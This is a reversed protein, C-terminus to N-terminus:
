EHTAVLGIIKTLKRITTVKLVSTGIRYNAPMQVAAPVILTYNSESPTLKFNISNVYIYENYPYTLTGLIVGTGDGGWSLNCIGFSGDSLHVEVQSYNAIKGDVTTGTSTSPTWGSANDYVTERKGSVYGAATMNGGSDVSWLLVNSDISPYLYITTTGDTVQIWVDYADDEALTVTITGEGSGTLSVTTEATSPFSSDSSKKLYVSVTASSCAYSYAIQATNGDRSTSKVRFILDATGSIDRAWAGGQPTTLKFFDEDTTVTIGNKTARALGFLYQSQSSSSGNSTRAFNSPLIIESCYKMNDFMGSIDNAVNLPFNSVDVSSLKSGDFMDSFDTGSSVDLSSLGIITTLSDIEFLRSFNRGGSVNWGSVDINTLNPFVGSQWDHYNIFDVYSTQKSYGGGSIANYFSVDGSFVISEVTNREDKTLTIYDLLDEQFYTFHGSRFQGSSGSAPALTLVGNLLTWKGTYNTGSTAM